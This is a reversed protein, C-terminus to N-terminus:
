RISYGRCLTTLLYKQAKNGKNKYNTYYIIKLIKNNLELILFFQFKLKKFNIWAIGSIVVAIEDFVIVFLVFM